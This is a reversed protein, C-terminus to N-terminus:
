YLNLRLTLKLFFNDKFKPYQYGGFRYYTGLGFTNFILHNFEVGAEQYYHQLQKFDFQTHEQANKMEGLAARYIFLPFVPKGFWEFGGFTHKVQFSLFQSSYFEGARMTEFNNLGALQFNKPFGGLKANGSSEFHNMIPADGILLGANINLHTEGFYNEFIDYYSFNMRLPEFDSNFLDWYKQITFYFITNGREVTVKGYPTRIYQDKPAWRLALKSYLTHYSKDENRYLYDFNASQKEYNTSVNFTFNNFIDQEYGLTYRHYHYFQDNYLNGLTQNMFRNYGNQLLNSSKGSPSVDQAYNLQIRGSYPKNVFIDLGSGWKWARDKTGYATYANLSYNQSLKENTNIAAGLRTGEYNNFSLFKTADVDIKGVSIKRGTALFRMMKQKTAYTDGSISDIVPYTNQEIKDLKQNRYNQMVRDWTGAGMNQFAIETEYGAFEKRKFPHPSQLNSISIEVHIWIKEVQEKDEENEKNANANYGFNGADLLFKQKYPFWLGNVLKWDADIDAIDDSLFNEAKFKTLGLTEDDIYLMGKFQQESTRKAPVFSVLTTPRNNYTIKEKITYRYYALGETSIPNIIDRFFFNITPRNFQLAVPQIALYEHIPSNIGAIKSSQVINKRGFRKAYKHDMAREGLFLHSKELITRWHNSIVDRESKPQLIFPISDKNVSSWYKTYSRFFYSDATNLDNKKTRNIVQQMFNRGALYQDERGVSVQELEIYLPELYVDIPNDTPSLRLVQTDYGDQFVIIKAYFKPLLFEGKEDTLGILQNDVNLIKAKSVRFEDTADFVRLLQQAQVFSVLFFSFCLLYKGMKQLKHLTFSFLLM